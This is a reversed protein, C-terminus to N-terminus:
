DRLLYMGFVLKYAVVGFIRHMHVYWISDFDFRGLAVSLASSPDLFPRQLSRLADIDKIPMDGFSGGLQQM